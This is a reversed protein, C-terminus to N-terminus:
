NGWLRSGSTDDDSNCSWNMFERMPVFNIIASFSLLSVVLAVLMGHYLCFLSCFIAHSGHVRAFSYTLPYPRPAFVSIVTFIAFAFLSISFVFQMGFTCLGRIFRVGGAFSVLLFLLTLTRGVPAMNCFMLENPYINKGCLRGRAGDDAPEKAHPLHVGSSSSSSGGQILPNLDM